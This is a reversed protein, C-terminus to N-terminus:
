SATIGYNTVNFTQSAGGTSCLEFGFDIQNLGSGAPVYGNSELWQLDALINVSGSPQNSDLVLSVPNGVAGKGRTSWVQYGVGGITATGIQSGAPRQGHNDVWIMIEQAYNNSGTGAWIDYAAEWDDGKAAPGNEAYTSTISHFSSLPEPKNSTTTYTQQTDPYSIVATNSAPMNATVSWRAPSYATLKQSIGGIPNWIDQIVSPRNGSLLGSIGSFTYPGCSGNQSSTVCATGTAPATAPATAPVSAPASAAPSSAPASAPASPSSSHTPTSSPKSAPSSTSASPKASSSTSPTPKGGSVGSAKVSWHVPVTHAPCKQARGVTLRTLKGDAACAYVTLSKGRPPGHHAAAVNAADTIGPSSTGSGAIAYGGYAAAGMLSLAAALPIIRKPKRHSRPKGNRHNRLASM